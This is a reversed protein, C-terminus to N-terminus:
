AAVKMANNATSDLSLVSKEDSNRQLLHAQERQWRRIRIALMGQELALALGCFAVSAWVYVGHKGMALFTGLDPWWPQLWYLGDTM